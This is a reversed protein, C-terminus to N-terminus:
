GTTGCLGGRFVVTKVQLLPPEQRQQLFPVSLSLCSGLVRASYGPHLSGSAPSQFGSFLPVGEGPVSYQAARQPCSPDIGVPASVASGGAPCLALVGAPRFIEWM